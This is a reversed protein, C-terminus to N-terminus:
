TMAALGHGSTERSPRGCCYTDVRMAYIGCERERPRLARRRDGLACWSTPPVRIRDVIEWRRRELQNTMVRREPRRGTAM